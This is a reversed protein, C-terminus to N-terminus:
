DFIIAFNTFIFNLLTYAPRSRCKFGLSEIIFSFTLCTRVYPRSIIFFDSLFLNHLRPSYENPASNLCCHIRLFITIFNQTGYFAPLKRFLEIIIVKELFAFSIICLSLCIICIIKLLCDYVVIYKPWIHCYLHVLCLKNYKLYHLCNIPM